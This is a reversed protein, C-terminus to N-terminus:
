GSRDSCTRFTFDLTRSTTRTSSVTFSSPFRLPHACLQMRMRLAFGFSAPRLTCGLTVAWLLRVRCPSGPSRSSLLCRFFCCYIPTSVLSSDRAASPFTFSVERRLTQDFSCRALDASLGFPGSISAPRAPSAM